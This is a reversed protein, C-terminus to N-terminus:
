PSAEQPTANAAIPAAAEPAIRPAGVRDDAEDSLRNLLAELEARKSELLGDDADRPVSIPGGWIFVGTGFPHPILHKDWSEIARRNKQSWAFAVIPAGTRAALQVAGMQARMRPGRPGDPTVGVAGQAHLHALMERFAGLVGKSKGGKASSGRIPAFGVTTCAASIVDGDRSQSILIKLKQAARWPEWGRRVLLLRNHWFCVIVPGGHAWAAEVVDRGVYRWRTTAGCLRVYWGILRGQLALGQPSNLFRKLMFRRPRIAIKAAAFGM